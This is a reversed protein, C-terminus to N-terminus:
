PLTTLLERYLSAYGDCEVRLGDLLHAFREHTRLPTLFPDTEVLTLCPYGHRIAATLWDIAEDIEGLHALACAVEYQAHHYHGFAQKEEETRRIHERTLAPDGRQAALLAHIPSGTRGLGQAMAEAEAFRELRLECIAIQYLIWRAAVADKMEDAVARSSELAEAYRGQHYRCFALHYRALLHSPSLAIAQELRAEAEPLLGAHYLIVGTRMHADDLGPRAAIAALLDRLAGPVDWGGQPSWRLRARVYFAEPLAPDLALARDCAAQARAYWNGEPQFDFAIRAYVDALGAWALAFDPAEDRAKEFWDAAAVYDELTERLFHARGRLYYEYARGAHEAARERAAPALPGTLEMAFTEAINRAVEDQVQFLDEMGLDFRGAWLARGDETALIHVSVRLRPGSQQFSGEVVVEVDLERGAQQPDVERGQYRLVASTPRVILGRHSALETIAADALGLGLNFSGSGATLDRFPLVALSRRVAGRTARGGSASHPISLNLRRLLTTFRPDQRLPDFLPDVGLYPLQDSREEFARDLWAFAEDKEGLGIHILAFHLAPVRRRAATQRLEALCALAAEKEGARAHANGILALPRTATPVSASFIRYGAIAEAFMGRAAHAMSLWQHAVGFGPEMRILKRAEEMTRDFRRAYYPPQALNANVILSLPDLEWARQAEAAAEETRGMASLFFSYWHRTSARQPDLELARRFDREAGPWDWDYHLRVWGLSAHAEALEPDLELAKLAAVKARPMAEDAPLVDFFFCGLLAYSDALGAYAPAYEPDKEVAQEFCRAGEQLDGEHRKYWHYRGRLYLQYAELDRPRRPVQPPAGLRLRLAEIVRTAIEDQVVFVDEFRLDYRESWLHYGDAASVLQVTIRLRDGARRVSGELVNDVRLEAALRRVDEARDKFRFSSTRAAVRLGSLKALANILEEAIGECLYEQESDASMNVFPLVAISREAAAPTAQLEGLARQVESASSFRAAPAKALCRLVLRAFPAPIEPRLEALDPPETMLTAGLREVPTPGTFARRCTLMEYLVAGFAFVDSRPDAPEGRLQEPSTYGPTGLIFGTRTLTPDEPQPAVQKALGFDLIKIRDDRTLFLNEPKLDRHVIGKAHAAALGAAIQRAYDLCADLPLPSGSLTERLTEGDLLETVVFPMGLAEGVDYVALLNPHNLAGAARTEQEFRRRLEPLDATDRIRKIAVERGLRADRARYVEGMGGSGLLAVVEYPGLRVGPALTSRSTTPNGEPGSAAASPFPRDLPGTAAHEALLAEVEAQLEADHPCAGALFGARDRHPRELAADFLESLRQWREPDM